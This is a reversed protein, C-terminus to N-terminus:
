PKYDPFRSELQRQYEEAKAPENLAQLAAILKTFAEPVKVPDSGLEVVIVYFGVARKPDGEAM